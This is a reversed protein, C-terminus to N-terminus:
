AVHRVKKMYKILYKANMKQIAGTDLYLKWARLQEEEFLGKRSQYLPTGKSFIEHLLLPDTDPTVVVVDISKGYFFDDLDYILKLKSAKVGRKYKVAIDIDSLHHTEGTSASGFLVLIEIHNKKCFSKIGRIKM